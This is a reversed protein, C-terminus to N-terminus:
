PAAAGAPNLPRAVRFGVDDYRFAAAAKARVAPRLSEAASFWSGGRVARHTCPEATRPSGDSPAAAYDGYFCDETWEWANGLLDFLGFANAEYSGAPATYPHGDSCNMYANGAPLQALRASLDAGNAFRCAGAADNAFGHRLASGARAAYEWEAESLLRYTKGTGHTLWAVYAKADAWNVCVAPHAGTQAFGPNRFSRGIREQPANYELTYCRDGAKYGSARVFAEFQDRTVEFRGVAFPERILVKHQPGENGGGSGNGADDNSGMLFEGAPVVMLEPCDACDRLVDGPRAEPKTVLAPVSPPRENDQQRRRAAAEEARKREEALRRQREDEEASKRREEEAQQQRAEEDQRRSAEEARRREENAQQRREDEKRKQQEEELRKQAALADDRVRQERDRLEQRRRALDEHELMALRDFAASVFPSSPYRAVFERLTAADGKDRIGDWAIRDAQNLYYESVLSVHTEPRQRGRTEANVDAAVRRFMMEIELGPQQLRKLLAATFPSNRGFGDDAVDGAATAYAIVM